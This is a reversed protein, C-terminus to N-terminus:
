VSHSAHPLGCRGRISDRLAGGYARDKDRSPADDRATHGGATRRTSSGSRLTRLALAALAALLAAAILRWQEVLFNLAPQMAVATDAGSHTTPDAM